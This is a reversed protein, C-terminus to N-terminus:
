SVKEKLYESCGTRLPCDHHDPNRSRCYRSAIDLIALNLDLCHQGAIVRSALERFPKDRRIDVRLELAFYRKLLRALNTDVMPQQEGCFRTAVASAVYQRVGPLRLLELYVAPQKSAEAMVAALNVLREARQRYFGLPRLLESLEKVRTAQLDEWRRFRTFFGAWFRAVMEARTQQLLIETILYEFFSVDKKRWPFDRLVRSSARRLRQRLGSVEQQTVANPRRMQRGVAAGKTKPEGSERSSM